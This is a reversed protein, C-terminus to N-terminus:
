SPNMENVAENNAVIFVKFAISLILKETYAGSFAISIIFFYKIHTETM